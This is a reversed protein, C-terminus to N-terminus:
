ETTKSQIGCVSFNLEKDRKFEVKMYDFEYEDPFTWGCKTDEDEIDNFATAVLDCALALPIGDEVKIRIEQM